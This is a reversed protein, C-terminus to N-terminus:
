LKYLWEWKTKSNPFNLPLNVFSWAYRKYQKLKEKQHSDEERLHIEALNQWFISLYKQKM